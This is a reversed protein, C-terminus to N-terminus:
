FGKFFFLICLGLIILSTVWKQNAVWWILFTPEQVSMTWGRGM